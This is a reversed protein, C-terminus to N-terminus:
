GTADPRRLAAIDSLMMGALAQGDWIGLWPVNRPGTSTAHVDVVTVDVWAPDPRRGLHGAWLVQVPLDQGLYARAQRVAHGADDSPIWWGLREWAGDATAELPGHGDLMTGAVQLRLEERLHAVVDNVPATSGFAEAGEEEASVAMGDWMTEPQPAGPIKNLIVALQAARDIGHSIGADASRRAPRRDGSQAGNRRQPEDPADRMGHGLLLPFLLYDLLVELGGEINVADGAVRFPENIQSLGDSTSAIVHVPRRHRDREYSQTTFAIAYGVASHWLSERWRVEAERCLVKAQTRAQPCHLDLAQVVTRLSAGAGLQRFAAHRDEAPPPWIWCQGLPDNWRSMLMPWGKRWRLERVARTGLNAGCTLALVAVVADWGAPAVPGRLRAPRDPRGPVASRHATASTGTGSARRACRTPAPPTRLLHHEPYRDGCVPCPTTSLEEMGRVRKLRTRALEADLQEAAAKPATTGATGWELDEVSANGAPCITMLHLSGAPDVLSADDPDHQEENGERWVELQVSGTPGAHGSYTGNETDDDAETPWGRARLQELVATLYAKASTPAADPSTTQVRIHRLATTYNEGGQHAAMRARAAEKAANSTTM